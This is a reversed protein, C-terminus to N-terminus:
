PKDVEIDDRSRQLAAVLFSGAFLVAFGAALLASFLAVGANGMEASGYVLALFLLLGSLGVVFQIVIRLPYKMSLVM